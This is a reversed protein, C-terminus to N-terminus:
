VIGELIKFKNNKARITSQKFTEEMLQEYKLFENAVLVLRGGENLYAPAQEIMKYTINTVVEFGRHFPPNMVILDFKDDIESYINSPLVTANTISNREITVEACQIALLNNDVLTVQEVHNALSAGIVGYGCGMDLVTKADRLVLDDLLFQTGDDFEQWSFVGAQTAVEIEGFSTVIPMYTMQTPIDGWDSPYRYDTENKTSVAVRHSKKYDLVQCNGFAQTADKILSKAGGKNPGVIYLEGGVKLSQMASWLQARGFDRGKPVFVIATNYIGQESPYVTDFFDVNDKRIYHQLRKLTNFNIDYVHVAQAVDAVAEILDVSDGSMILITEDDGYKTNALVSKTSA